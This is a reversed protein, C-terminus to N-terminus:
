HRCVHHLAGPRRATCQVTPRPPWPRDRQAPDLGSGSSRAQWKPPCPDDNDNDTNDADDNDGDGNDGDGDDDGHDNPM